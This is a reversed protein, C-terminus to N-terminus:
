ENSIDMWDGCLANGISFLTEKSKLVQIRKVDNCTTM